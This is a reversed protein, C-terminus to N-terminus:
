LGALNRSCTQVHERGLRQRRCARKPVHWVDVDARVVRGAVGVAKMLPQLSEEVGNLMHPICCLILLKYPQLM